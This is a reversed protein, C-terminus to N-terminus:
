QELEAVYKSRGELETIQRQSEMELAPEVSESELIHPGPAEVDLEPTRLTSAELETFISSERMHHPKDNSSQRSPALSAPSAPERLPLMDNLLESGRKHTSKRHGLLKLKDSIFTLM